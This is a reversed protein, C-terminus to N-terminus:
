LSVGTFLYGLEKGQIVNVSNEGISIKVGGMGFEGAKLHHGFLGLQNGDIPSYVNIIFNTPLALSPKNEYTYLGASNNFCEVYTSESFNIASIKSKGVVIKELNLEEEVMYKTIFNNGFCAITNPNKRFTEWADESFWMRNYMVPATKIANKIDAVPDSSVNKWSDNTTYNKTQAYNNPNQVIDAIDKERAFLIVRALFRVYYGTLDFVGAKEMDLIDQIEISVSVGKSKVTFRNNNRNFQIEPLVANEKMEIEEPKPM